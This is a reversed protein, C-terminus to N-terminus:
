LAELLEKDVSRSGGCAACDLFYVDSDADHRLQTAVRTHCHDCQTLAAVHATWRNVLTTGHTACDTTPKHQPCDPEDAFDCIIGGLNYDYMFGCCRHPPPPPNLAHDREIREIAAETAFRPLQAVRGQSIYAGYHAECRYGLSSYAVASCDAERCFQERKNVASWTLWLRGRNEDLYQAFVISNSEHPLPLSMKASLFPFSLFGVKQIIDVPGKLKKFFKFRDSDDVSYTSGHVEKNKGGIRFFGCLGMRIPM